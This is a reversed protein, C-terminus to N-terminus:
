RRVKGSTSADIVIVMLRLHIRSSASHATTAAQPAAIAAQLVLPDPLPYALAEVALAIVSASADALV